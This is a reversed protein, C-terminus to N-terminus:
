LCQSQIRSISM